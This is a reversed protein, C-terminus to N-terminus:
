ILTLLAALTDAQNRRITAVLQPDYFGDKPKVNHTYYLEAKAAEAEMAEINAQILAKTSEVKRVPLADILDCKKSM